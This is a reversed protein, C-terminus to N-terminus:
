YYAVVERNVKRITEKLLAVDETFWETRGDGKEKPTRCSELQKHVVSETLKRFPTEMSFICTYHKKNKLEQTHVRRDPLNISMGIKYCGEDRDDIDKYM